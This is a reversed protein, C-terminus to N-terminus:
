RNTKRDLFEFFQKEFEGTSKCYYELDRLGEDDMVEFITVYRTSTMVKIISDEEKELNVEFRIKKDKIVWDDMLGTCNTLSDFKVPSISFDSTIIGASKDMTSVSLNNVAFFEVMDAWLEDYTGRYTNSAEYPKLRGRDIGTSCSIFILLLFFFLIRM